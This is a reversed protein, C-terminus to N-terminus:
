AAHHNQRCGTKAAKQRRQGPWPAAKLVTKRHSYGMSPTVAGRKEEFFFFSSLFLLPHIEAINPAFFFFSSFLEVPNIRGAHVPVGFPEFPWSQPMPGNVRGNILLGLRGQIKFGSHLPRGKGDVKSPKPRWEQISRPAFIRPALREFTGAKPNELMGIQATTSITVPPQVRQDGGKSNPM